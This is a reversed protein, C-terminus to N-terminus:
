SKVKSGPPEEIYFCDKSLTYAGSYRRHLTKEGKEIDFECLELTPAMNSVFGKCQPPEASSACLIIIPLFM